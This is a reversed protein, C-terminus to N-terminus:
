IPRDRRPYVVNDFYSRPQWGSLIGGLIFEDILDMTADLVSPAAAGVLTGVPGALYSGLGGTLASVTLTKVLRGGKSALFGRKESIAKLYEVSIDGSYADATATRIWTRFKRADQKLRLKPVKRVDLERSRFLETLDPVGEIQFVRNYAREIRAGRHLRDISDHCVRAIAFEDVTNMRLNAILSLDHMEQALNALRQKAENGLEELPVEPTLGAFGFRGLKYGEHGFEVAHPAFSSGPDVYSDALAQKLKRLFKSEYTRVSRNFAEAVSADPECHTPTNLASSVLPMLGKKPEAVYLVASKQLWFKVAGQDLLELLGQAGFAKILVPIIMNEGYVSFCVGEHRMLIAAVENEAELLARVDKRPERQEGKILVSRALGNVVRDFIIDEKGSDKM